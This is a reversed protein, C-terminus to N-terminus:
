FLLLINPPNYPSRGGGEDDEVESSLLVLVLVGLCFLLTQDVLTLIAGGVRRLGMVGFGMIGLGLDVGGSGGGASTM